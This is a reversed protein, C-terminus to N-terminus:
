QEKKKSFLKTELTQCQQLKKGQSGGEITGLRWYNQKEELPGIEKQAEESDMTRFFVFRWCVTPKPKNNAMLRESLAM